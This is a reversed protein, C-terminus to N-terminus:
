MVYAPISSSAPVSMSPSSAKRGKNIATLFRPYKSRGPFLNDSPQRYPLDTRGVLSLTLARLRWEPGEPQIGCPSAHDLADRHDCVRVPNDV